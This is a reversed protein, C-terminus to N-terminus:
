QSRDMPKPTRISDLETYVKEFARRRHLFDEEVSPPSKAPSFICSSARFSISSPDFGNVPLDLPDSHLVPCPPIFPWGARKSKAPNHYRIDYARISPMQRPFFLFVPVASAPEANSPYFCHKQLLGMNCSCLLYRSRSKRMTSCM